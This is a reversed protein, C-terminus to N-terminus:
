IGFNLDSYTTPLAPLKCRAVSSDASDSLDCNSGCVDIRNNLPDSRIMQTLGLATIELDCGGAFSCSIGGTASSATVAIQNDLVAAPDAVSQYIVGNSDDEFSLEPAEAATSLPVGNTWTATAQNASDVVVSDATIGVFSASVTHASTPYNSGTLVITTETSAVSATAPSATATLQEYTCSTICANESQDDSVYLTVATDIYEVKNTKCHLVGYASVWKTECIDAGDIHLSLENSDVGAGPVTAIITTGGVSGSSPVLSVLKESLTFGADLIEHGAPKGGPLLLKLGNINKSGVDTMTLVIETAASSKVAQAVGNAEFVIGTTTLAFNTGTIVLDWNNNVDDYVPEVTAITPISTDSFEFGQCVAAECTAEESAKLYVVVTAIDANAKTISDDVQCTIETPGTTLVYCNVAPVGNAFLQVPNDTKEDGFNTGTITLVGGGYISMTMPSVDTVTAGVNLVM